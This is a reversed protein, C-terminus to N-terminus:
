WGRRTMEHEEIHCNAGLTAPVVLLPAAAVAMPLFAWYPSGGLDWAAGSLITCAVAEAYSITFIAGALRPVEAQARALLAPLAFGLTFVVAGAFGLIGACVIVWSNAMIGILCLLVVAGSLV